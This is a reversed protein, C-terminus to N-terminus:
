EELLEYIYKSSATSKVVSVYLGKDSPIRELSFDGGALLSIYYNSVTRGNAVNILRLSHDLGVIALYGSGFDTAFRMKTTFITNM